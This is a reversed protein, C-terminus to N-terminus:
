IRRPKRITGAFKSKVVTGSPAYKDLLAEVILYDDETCLPDTTIKINDLAYQSINVHFFDLDPGKGQYLSTAVINPIQKSFEEFFNDKRPPPLSPVIFLVFRYEKQFEWDPSKLAAIGTPDSIQGKVEGNSSVDFKIAENKEKCSIRLMSM